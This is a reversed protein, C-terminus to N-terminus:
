FIRMRRVICFTLGSLGFLGLTAPEPIVYLDAIEEDSLARSYVRVEDFVATLRTSTETGNNWWHRGLAAYEPHPINLVAPISDLLAGNRYANVYGSSFTMAYHVFENAASPLPYDSLSEGFKYRIDGIANKSIGIEGPNTSYAKEGFSIYSEGHPHLIEIEKVWLSVTVEDMANFDIQPLLVHGGSSSLHSSNGFIKLGQGDIGDEYTHSNMISGDNGYGSQDVATTGVDDDFTYHLLLGDGIGASAGQLFLCFSFFLASILGYRSM